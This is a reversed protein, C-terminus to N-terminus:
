QVTRVLIKMRLPHGFLDRTTVSQSVSLVTGIVSIKPTLLNSEAVLIGGILDEIDGLGVDTRVPVKLPVHVM